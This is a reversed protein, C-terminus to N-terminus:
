KGLGASGVALYVHARAPFGSVCVTDPHLGSVSERKERRKEAAASFWLGTLETLTCRVCICLDACSLIM